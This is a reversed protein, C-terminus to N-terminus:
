MPETYELHAFFIVICHMTSVHSLINQIYGCFLLELVQQNSEKPFEFLVSHKNIPYMTTVLGLVEQVNGCYALSPFKLYM